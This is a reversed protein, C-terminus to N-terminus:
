PKAKIVHLVEGSKKHVAYILFHCNGQPYPAIKFSYDYYYKGDKLKENTLSSGFVDGNLHLRLLDRHVYNENVNNPYPSGPPFLQPKILSDELFAVVLGVDAPDLAVDLLEVEVHLFAGQTSPYYNVISQLNVQLDNEVLIAEAANRWKNATFTYNSEFLKRSVAGRPNGSFGSQPLAALFQAISIGIPNTFDYTFPASTSSQFNEKGTPGSHITQVLVRGAYDEMLQHATDAAAPCFICKHGTFDELLVNRNTNPNTGFTPWPYDAFDGPYLSEDLEGAQRPPYPNEVKDCSSLSCLIVFLILIFKM